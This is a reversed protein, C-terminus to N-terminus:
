PARRGIGSQSPKALSSRRRYAWTVAVFLAAAMAVVILVVAWEPVTGVPMIVQRVYNVGLITVVYWWWPAWKGSRATAPRPQQPDTGGSRPAQQAVPAGSSVPDSPAPLDGSVEDGDQPVKTTPWLALHGFTVVAVVAVVMLVFITADAATSLDDPKVLQRVVNALGLAVAYPWWPTGWPLRRNLYQNVVDSFATEANADAM